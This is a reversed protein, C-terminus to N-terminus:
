EKQIFDGERVDKEYLIATFNISDCIKNPLDSDAMRRHPWGPWFLGFARSFTSVLWFGISLTVSAPTSFTPFPCGANFRALLAEEM